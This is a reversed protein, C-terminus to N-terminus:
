IGVEQQEYKQIPIIKSTEKAFRILIYWNSCTCMYLSRVIPSIFQLIHQVVDVGFANTLEDQHGLIIHLILVM